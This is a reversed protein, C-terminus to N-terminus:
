RFAEKAELYDQETITPFSEATQTGLSFPSEDAAELTLIGDRDPIQITVKM